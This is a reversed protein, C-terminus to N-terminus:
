IQSPIIQTITTNQPLSINYMDVFVQSGDFTISLTDPSSGRYSVLMATKFYMQIDM